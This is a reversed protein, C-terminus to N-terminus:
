TQYRTDMDIAIDLIQIQIPIKVGKQLVLNRQTPRRLGLRAKSVFPQPVVTLGIESEEVERLSRRVYFSIVKLYPINTSTIFRPRATIM